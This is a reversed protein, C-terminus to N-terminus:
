TLHDSVSCIKMSIFSFLCFFFFSPVVQNSILRFSPHLHSYSIVFRVFSTESVKFYNRFNKKKKQLLFSKATSFSSSFTKFSLYFILRIHRMLLLRLDMKKKRKNNNNKTFANASFFGCLLNCENQQDRIQRYLPCQWSICKRRRRRRKSQPSFTWINSFM